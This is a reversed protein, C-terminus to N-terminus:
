SSKLASESTTRTSVQPAAADTSKLKTSPTSPVPPADAWSPSTAQPAHFFAFAAVTSPTVQKASANVTPSSKTPEALSVTETPTPLKTPNASVSASQAKFFKERPADAVTTVTTSSVAPASPVTVTSSSVTPFTLATPASEVLTTPSDKSASAIEVSWNKMKRASTALRDM